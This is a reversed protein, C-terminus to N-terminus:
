TVFTASRSRRLRNNGFACSFRAAFGRYSPWRTSSLAKWEKDATLFESNNSYPPACRRASCIIAHVLSSAACYIPLGKAFIERNQVFLGMAMRQDIKIVRGRRLFRPRHDIRKPVIVLVVVGIHMAAQVIQAGARCLSVLVRPPTNCLVDARRARVFDNECAPRGLADIQHRLCPAPFKNASSVHNEQRFHLVM